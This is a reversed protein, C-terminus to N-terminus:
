MNRVQEVDLSSVTHRSFLGIVHKLGLSTLLANKFSEIHLIEIKFTCHNFIRM